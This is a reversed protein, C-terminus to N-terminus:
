VKGIERTSLKQLALILVVGAVVLVLRLVVQQDALSQNLEFPFLTRLSGAMFGVLVAMMLSRHTALAWKLIRSSLMLGVIVGIGFVLMNALENLRIDLKFLNHIFNIIFPYVGFLVLLFSASIGPLALAMAVIVGVVFLLLLNSENSVEAPRQGLLLFVLTFTVLAIAIEKVGKQEIESYPILISALVIGFMLAFLYSAYNDLIYAIIGTFTPVTVLVGVVICLCFKWDVARFATTLKTRDRWKFSVIYLVISEGLHTFSHLLKIFDDYIGLILAVISGGVGPILESIGILIGYFVLMLYKM